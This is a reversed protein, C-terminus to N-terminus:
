CIQQAVWRDLGASHRIEQFLRCRQPQSAGEGPCPEARLQDALWRPRWRSEQGEYGRTEPDRRFGLSGQPRCGMRRRELRSADAADLVLDQSRVRRVESQVTG